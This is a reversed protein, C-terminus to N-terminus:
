VAQIPSSLPPPAVTRLWPDIEQMTPFRFQGCDRTLSAGAQRMATVREFVAEAVDRVRKVVAKKRVDSAILLVDDLSACLRPKLEDPVHKEGRVVVPIVLGKNRLAIPMADRRADEIRRMGAYERACYPYELDFYEPTFLLVMCTSRCLQEALEDDLYDGPRLRKTDVYVPYNASLLALQEALTLCLRRVIESAAGAHRYSIFCANTFSM